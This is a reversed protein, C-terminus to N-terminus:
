SFVVILLLESVVFAAITAQATPPATPAATPMLVALQSQYIEDLYCAAGPAGIGLANLPIPFPSPHGLM